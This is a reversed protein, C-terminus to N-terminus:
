ATCVCLLITACAVADRTFEISSCCCSCLEMELTCRVFKGGVIFLTLNVNYILQATCAGVLM